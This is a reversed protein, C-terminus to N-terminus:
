HIVTEVGNTILLDQSRLSKETELLNPIEEKKKKM